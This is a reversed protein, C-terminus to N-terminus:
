SAPCATAPGTPNSSDTCARVVSFDARSRALALAGTGESRVQINLMRGTGAVASVQWRTTIRGVGPLDTFCSWVPPMPPAGGGATICPTAPPTTDASNGGRTASLVSFPVTRLLDLRESSAMTAASGQNAVTNSSAAVLLLNTVAILGFVLVIIAVLAEVLTFGSENTRSTPEPMSNETM